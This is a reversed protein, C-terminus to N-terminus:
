EEKRQSGYIKAERQHIIQKVPKAKPNRRYRNKTYPTGDAKYRTYSEVFTKAPESMVVQRQRYATTKRNNRATM